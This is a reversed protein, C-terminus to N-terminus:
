SLGEEQKPKKHPPKRESKRRCQLGVWIVGEKEIFTADAAERVGIFEGVIEWQPRAPNPSKDIRVLVERFRCVCEVKVYGEEDDFCCRRTSRTDLPKLSELDFLVTHTSPREGFDKL